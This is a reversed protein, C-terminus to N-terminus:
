LMLGVELAFLDNEGMEKLSADDDSTGVDSTCLTDKSTNNEPNTDYNNSVSTNHNYANDDRMSGSKSLSIRDWVLSFSSLSAQNQQSQHDLQQQQRQQQQQQRHKRFSWSRTIDWSGNTEGDNNHEETRHPTSPQVSTQSAPIQGHVLNNARRSGGGSSGFISANNMRRGSGARPTPEMDGMNMNRHRTGARPTQELDSIIYDVDNTHDGDNIHEENNYRNNDSHGYDITTYGMMESVEINDDEEIDTNNCNNSWQYVINSNSSGVNVLNSDNTNADADDTHPASVSLPSSTAERLRALPSLPFKM